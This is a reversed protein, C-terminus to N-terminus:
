VVPMKNILETTPKGPAAQTLLIRATIVIGLWFGVTELTHRM